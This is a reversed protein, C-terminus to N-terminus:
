QQKKSFTRGEFNYDRVFHEISMIRDGNDPNLTDRKTLDGQLSNGVRIQGEPLDYWTASYYHHQGNEVAMLAFPDGNSTKTAAILKKLEAVSDKGAIQLGERSVSIESNGVPGLFRDITTFASDIQDNVLAEPHKAASLRLLQTGLSENPHRRSFAEFGPAMEAKDAAIEDKSVFLYLPETEYQLPACKVFYGGKDAAQKIEIRELLERGGPQQAMSRLSAYLHCETTSSRQKFVEDKLDAKWLDTPTQLANFEQSTLKPLVNLAGRKSVRSALEQDILAIRRDCWWQESGSLKNRESGLQAKLDALEKEPKNLQGNGGKVFQQQEELAAMTKKIYIERSEEIIKAGHEPSLQYAEERLEPFSLAKQQKGLEHGFASLVSAKSDNDLEWGQREVRGAEFVKIKAELEPSVVPKPAPPKPPTFASSASSSTPGPPNPSAPTFASSASSSTPGPPDPPAPTFAPPEPSSLAPTPPKSASAASSSTSSAASTSSGKAKGEPLVSAVSNEPATEEGSRKLLKEFWGPNMHHAIFAVPLVLALAAYKFWGSSQSANTAAQSSFVTSGMRKDAAILGWQQLKARASAVIQDSYALAGATGAIATGGILWPKASSSGSATKGMIENKLHTLFERIQSLSGSTSRGVKRRTSLELSDAVKSFGCYCLSSRFPKLVTDAFKPIGSISGM